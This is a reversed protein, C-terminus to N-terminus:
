DTDRKRYRKRARAPSFDILVAIVLGLIPIFTWSNDFYNYVVSYWLLTAPMFIFGLIPWIIGPFMDSFWSTFLWLIIMTLRPIFFALIFLLIVM